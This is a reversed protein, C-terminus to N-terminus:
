IRTTGTALDKVFQIVNDCLGALPQGSDSLNAKITDVLASGVVVADAFKNIVYVQESSKIGFGVALLTLFMGAM